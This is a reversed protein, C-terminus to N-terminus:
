NIFSREKNAFLIRWARYKFIKEWQFVVNYKWFLIKDAVNIGWLDLSLIKYDLKM